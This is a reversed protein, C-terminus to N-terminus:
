ARDVPFTLVEDLRTSGACLMVLRDFGLAVGACSPLGHQMAALLHSEEPLRPKGDAQRERNVHQNRRRLEHADILEHYGNALEIGDVYLEFREAVPPTGPRIRALAAQSPPYDFVITPCDRGLNPQVYDTLLLNLLSDRDDVVGTPIPTGDASRLIAALQATDSMHPDLGVHQQFAQKYSLLQCPGRGLLANCLEDLLQIGDNMTDGCRYWEVITFEPNHLRGSEAGRFAHTVQYIAEGGSALLRKMHFEPSTQLFRTPGEHPRRPDDFLKVRLPDLHRDIVTDASLLPTTVELFKRRDFFARLRRLLRARLRLNDWSATPRFLQDSPVEPDSVTKRQPDDSFVDM